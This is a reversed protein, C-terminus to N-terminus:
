FAKFLRSFFRFHIMRAFFFELWSSFSIAFDRPFFFLGVRPPFSNQCRQFLFFFHPKWNKRQNLVVNWAWVTRARPFDQFFRLVKFLGKLFFAKFVGNFLSSNKARFIVGAQPGHFASRYQGFFVAGVFISYPEMRPPPSWCRCGLTGGSWRWVTVSLSCSAWQSVSVKMPTEWWLNSWRRGNHGSEKRERKQWISFSGPQAPLHQCASVGVEPKLFGWPANECLNLLASFSNADPM